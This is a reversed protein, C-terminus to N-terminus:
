RTADVADSIRELGQELTHPEALLSVIVHPESAFDYFYGPQVLVNYRDLLELVWEEEPRTAPLRVIAYWGGEVRLPEFRARTRELNGLLRRMMQEHFAPHLELLRAAAHQIPAGVSLYTDAILELREMAEARVSEPGSVAIWGLKMQPLGLVKSYGNLSFALVHHRGALTRLAHDPPSIAYSAFVEDSIIAAEHELCLEALYRYEAEKIYSGTPNNPNVVVVARAGEKLGREADDMDIWWGEAYHLRYPQATVHELDALYDFLPYSPRPVLVSDGADCLLKFLWSYAESTSATLILREAPVASDYCARSIAERANTLGFPSPEYTLSGPSALADLIATGEYAIGARTPNSETLDLVARGDRWKQELMRALRNRAMSWRLRSSFM